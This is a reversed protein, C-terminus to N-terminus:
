HRQQKNVPTAKYTHIFPFMPGYPPVIKLSDKQAKSKSDNYSPATLRLPYSYHGHMNRIQEFVSHDKRTAQRHGGTREDRVVFPEVLRANKVSADEVLMVKDRVNGAGKVFSPIVSIVDVLSGECRKGAETM